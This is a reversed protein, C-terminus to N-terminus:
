HKTLLMHTQLLSRKLKIAATPLHKTKDVLPLCIRGVLVLLCM